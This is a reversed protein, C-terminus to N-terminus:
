YLNLQVGTQPYLIVQTSFLMCFHQGGPTVDQSVGSCYVVFTGKHQRHLAKIQLKKFVM